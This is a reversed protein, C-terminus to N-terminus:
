GSVVNWILFRVTPFTEKNTLAEANEGYIMDLNWEAALRNRYEIM